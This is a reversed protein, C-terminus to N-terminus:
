CTSVVKFPLTILQIHQRQLAMAEDQAEKAAGFRDSAPLWNLGDISVQVIFYTGEPALVEIVRSRFAAKAM